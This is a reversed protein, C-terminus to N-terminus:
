QVSVCYLHKSGRILIMSGDIVLSASVSEGIPNISVFRPIETDTIVLTQGNLDTIYVHGNAAVPSAYINSLPGLRLAGPANRGTEATIRTLVNQYHTLFYLSGRYLLPSPVYPTGRTRTWLIRDSGTIDGKAGSLQIAMLIRKEYSSGAYLVGNGAVPTAVINASMGGSEWVVNGNSLSYGRVKDTGCVIVQQEGDVNSIIPTSWSTVENRAVRWKETGDASDLAILFSEGEHDWNVVLTQGHLAPSAGEGHGHKTHMAGLQKQWLLEGKRNLCYLGHSGFFAYFRKGDTVPSASALSATNHAGEIPIAEQLTKKWLLTGDAAKIAWAQFQYKTTVRRNDHAGPRGSQRPEFPPGVPIATTLFILGRSVVPTGHGEGELQTKWSINREQTWETPPTANPAVGTGLPGRWQHWDGRAVGTDAFLACLVWAQLTWCTLKHLHSLPSHLM